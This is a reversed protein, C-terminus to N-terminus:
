IHILSLSDAFCDQFTSVFCDQQDSPLPIFGTLFIARFIQVAGGIHFIRLTIYFFIVLRMLIIKEILFPQRIVAAM